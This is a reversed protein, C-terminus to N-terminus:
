EKGRVGPSDPQGGGSSAQAEGPVLQSPKQDERNGSVHETENPDETLNAEPPMMGTDAEEAAKIDDDTISAFLGTTGSLKRLEKLATSNSIAGAQLAQLVAGTLSQASACRQETTEQWLPKFDFDFTEPVPKGTLSEGMVRFLRSLNERLMSEQLRSVMDYYTRLDSEGTASLGAPSQGFLRVLPIQLAGAIQQGFQQLVEPLGAFTYTQTSFDDEADMVTLGEQSQLLSVLRMQALFGKQQEDNGLGAMTRFGKIKVNRLYAKSVLQSAGQTAADFAKIQPLPRELVSAGWGGYAQALYYPLEAGEFRLVRSAHIPAGQTDLNGRMVRYFEPKGFSPGLAQIVGDTDVQWRDLVFLGRFAGKRIEGLPKSLDDGEIMIVAISGGYLRAWKLAECLRDWVRSRDLFTNLRETLSPDDSSIFDVGERTMDEAVSDVALSAIWSSQYLWQLQQYNLSSFNPTYITANGSNGPVDGLRQLLNAIGDGFRRTKEGRKRRSTM